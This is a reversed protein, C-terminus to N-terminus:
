KRALIQAAGPITRLWIPKEITLGADRQWSQIEKVAWTGSDSTAAFYLDFMAGVQGATGPGEPRIIEQVVFRGGPKLARAIRTSLTRNLDETFHHMLQSVFVLDYENEGLDDELANGPRHQVTEGMNEKALIPAAQEIAAPLDLIISRLGDHARCLAVSYYGHSGGIDLMSKAGSPMPTRQAIESASIGALSRMGRQYLNWDDASDLTRHVDMHEGGKIFEEIGEVFRWELAKFLINDRLSQPSSELLWKRSMPTLEYTGSKFSLYEMGTLANLLKETGFPSTNCQKAIAEATKAGDELAEFVGVKTAIEVVRTFMMGMQTEILPRPVVNNRLLIREILSEAITGLKM